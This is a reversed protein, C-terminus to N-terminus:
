AKKGGYLKKYQAMAQKKTFGMELYMNLTDKPINVDEVDGAGDGETKLHQKGKIDNLAKQKTSAKAAELIQKRNVATFADVLTYGQAFKRWAEPPIDEPKKVMDPYEAVLEKYASLLRQDEQAKQIQGMLMENQQRLAQIEPSNAVIDRIVKPDYGLDLYQQEMAQMQRQMQSQVQAQQQMQLMNKYQALQQEMAQMQRRMNAFAANTEPSQAPKAPEQENEGDEFDEEQEEDEVEEVEEDIGTDEAEDIDIDNIDDFM